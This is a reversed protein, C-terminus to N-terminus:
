CANTLKGERGVLSFQKNVVFRPGDSLRCITVFQFTGALSFVTYFFTGFLFLTYSTLLLIISLTYSFCCEAVFHLLAPRLILFCSTMQVFM